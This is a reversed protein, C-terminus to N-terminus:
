LSDRVGAAMRLRLSHLIDDLIDRDPAKTLAAAAKDAGGVWGADGSAATEVGVVCQQVTKLLSKSDSNNTYICVYTYIQIYIHIYIYVCIYM